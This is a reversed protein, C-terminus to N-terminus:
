KKPVLLNQFYEKFQNILNFDAMHASLKNYYAKKKKELCRPLM